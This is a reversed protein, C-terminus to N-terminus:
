HFLLTDLYRAAEEAGNRWPPAVPLPGQMAERAAEAAQQATEVIRIGSHQEARWRQCDYKRPRPRAILPVGMAQCEHVTNYGAGGVVVRASAIWDIAPWYHVWRDPPCGPPLEAALCRVRLDKALEATVEGYWPLENAMGGACVIVDVQETVRQPERVLWPATVKADPVKWLESEEGPRIVGDYHDAVFRGLDAWQVYEPNLIRNVLIKKARLGPLIGALEGGLGRPFTDVVLVDTEREVARVAEEVTAVLETHLEPILGVYPSNTVIRAHHFRALAAARTLHGWGGGLAYITINL